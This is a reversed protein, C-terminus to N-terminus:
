YDAHDQRSRDAATLAEGQACDPRLPPSGPQRFEAWERALRQPQCSSLALKPGSPPSVMRRVAAAPGHVRIPTSEVTTPVDPPISSTEKVGKAQPCGACVPLLRGPCAPPRRQCLSPIEPREINLCPCVHLRRRGGGNRQATELRTYATCSVSGSSHQCPPPQM